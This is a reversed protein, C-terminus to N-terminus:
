RAKCSTYLLMYPLTLYISFGGTSNLQLFPVLSLSDRGTFPRPKFCVLRSSFPHVLPTHPVPDSPILPYSRRLLHPVVSAM